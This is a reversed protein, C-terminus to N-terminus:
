AIKNKIWSIYNSVRAFVTGQGCGYGWSVIGVVYWRDDSPNKYVLPGGSDGQCAGSNISSDGGCINWIRNFMFGYKSQCIEDTFMNMPVQYKVSTTPGNFYEAGWGTLWAVKNSVDITGTEDICAPIAYLGDWNVPVDLKLLAVDNAVTNSNYYEHTFLKVANQSQVWSEMNNRDHVGIFVRVGFPLSQAGGFCHSATLVYQSNILNGGCFHKGFQTLSVSWGWDGPKAVTGGVIRANDNVM